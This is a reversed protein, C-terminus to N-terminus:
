GSWGPSRLPYKLDIVAKLLVLEQDTTYQKGARDGYKILAPAKVIEVYLSPMQQATNSVLFQGQEDDEEMKSPDFGRPTNHGYPNWFCYGAKQQSLILDLDVSRRVIIELTITKMSANPKEYWISDDDSSRLSKLESKVEKVTSM